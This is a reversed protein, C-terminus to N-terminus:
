LGVHVTADLLFSPKFEFNEEDDIHGLFSGPKRKKFTASRHYNYGAKVAVWSKKAFHLEPEIYSRFMTSSYARWKGDREAVAPMSEWQFGTLKLTFADSLRVGGTVNAGSQITFDFTYKSDDYKVMVAPIILPSDYLTSFSAGIGADLTKSFHHAIIAGGRVNVTNWRVHDPEAYIGAGLQAMLYWTRGIPMVHNVSLSTNMIRDPTMGKADDKNDLVGLTGAATLSWLNIRGLSDKKYYFPLSIRAKYKQLSGKGYEDGAKNKLTTSSLSTASIEVSQAYAGLGISLM